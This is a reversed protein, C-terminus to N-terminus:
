HYSARSRMDFVLIQGAYKQRMNYMLQASTMNVVFKEGLFKLCEAETDPKTKFLDHIDFRSFTAEIEALQETSYKGHRHKRLTHKNPLRALSDM